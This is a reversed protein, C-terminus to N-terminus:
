EVFTVGGNYLGSLLSDRLAVTTRSIHDYVAAKADLLELVEAIESQRAPDPFAVPLTGLVKGSISPMASGTANRHVWDVVRPHGLYYLLYSPRLRSVDPRLRICATGYLWGAEKPGIIVQRGLEGTRACVIDGVRLRYGALERAAVESVRALHHDSVANIRFDKTMVVPVGPATNTIARGRLAGSPGSKIECLEALPAERWGAPLDGILSGM